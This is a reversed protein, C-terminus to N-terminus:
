PGLLGSGEVPALLELESIRWEGGDEIWLSRVRWSERGAGNGRDLTVTGVYRLEASRGGPGMNLQYDSIAVDLRRAGTRLRLVAGALEQPDTLEGAYPRARVIFGPAFFDLVGRATAAAALTSEEGHKELKGALADLRRYLRREPASWWSWALWLAAIAVAVIALRVARPSM